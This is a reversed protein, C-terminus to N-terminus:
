RSGVGVCHTRMLAQLRAIENATFTEAAHRYTNNYRRNLLLKEALPLSQNDPSSSDHAKLVDLFFALKKNVDMNSGRGPPEDVDHKQYVDLARRNLRLLAEPDIMCPVGSVHAEAQEVQKRAEVVKNCDVEHRSWVIRMCEESCVAFAKCRSCRKHSPKRCNECLAIGVPADGAAKM